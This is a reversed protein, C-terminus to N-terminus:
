HAIKCWLGKGPAVPTQLGARTVPKLLKYVFVPCCSVNVWPIGMLGRESLCPYHGNGERELVEMVQQISEYGCRNAVM